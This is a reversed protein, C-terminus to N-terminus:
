SASTYEGAAADAAGIAIAYSRPREPPGCHVDFKSLIQRSRCWHKLVHVLQILLFRHLM